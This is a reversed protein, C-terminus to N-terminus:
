VMSCINQLYYDNTGMQSKLKRLEEKKCDLSDKHLNKIRILINTSLM